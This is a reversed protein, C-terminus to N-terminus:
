SGRVSFGKTAFYKNFVGFKCVPSFIFKLFVCVQSKMEEERESVFKQLIPARKETRMQERGM